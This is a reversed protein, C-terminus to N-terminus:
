PWARKSVVHMSGPFPSSVFLTEKTLVAPQTCELQLVSYESSLFVAAEQTITLFLVFLLHVCAYM